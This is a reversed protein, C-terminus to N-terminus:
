KEPFLSRFLDALGLSDTPAVPAPVEPWTPEKIVPESVTEESIPGCVAYEARGGTTLGALIQNVNAVNVANIRETYKTMLDKGYAYRTVLMDMLTKPEKIKSGFSNSLQSKYIAFQAKTIGSKGLKAVDARIRALVAETDEVRYLFAPLGAQPAIGLTFYLNVRDEPYMMFEPTVSSYWGLPAASKAVADQLAFAAINVAMYSEATFNVPSTFGLYIAHNEPDKRSVSKRGSLMTDKIRARPASTRTDAKFGGLYQSLTKKLATEDMNGLIILISENVKAFQSVYFREAKRPFDDGLQHLTKGSKYPSGPHMLSDIVFRGTKKYDPKLPLCSKYYAFSAADPKRETSIARLAKLTLPLRSTPAAGSIRLDSATVDINMSIGNASLMNWFSIPTMGSINDLKLMDALYANEGENLSPVLSCGGKLLWTYRFTGKEGTQKYIVRIGNSFAWMQGGSLPETATAKIKQRAPSINLSTTDKHNITYSVDTTGAAQLEWSKIFQDKIGAMDAASSDARCVLTLNRSKDLLASVFNNFLRVGTEEDLVRGTFFDLKAQEAALSSGYLFASICRDLYVSNSIHEGIFDRRLDMVLENQADRYEGPISGHIDLDALVGALIGSAKPLLPTMSKVSIIYQEDSPTESSSVYRFDVLAPIHAARFKKALRKKILIGLEAAFKDSVMPQITKMRAAPTRATSYIASVTGTEGDHQHELRFIPEAKEKWAYKQAPTQSPLKNVLMSLLNMKNIIANADIDGSVIIAQNQPSYLKHMPGQDRGIIDFLMLLTSDVIEKSRPLILDNFRFITADSCVTVYGQQKPQIGNRNLYRFPSVSAFHPLECFAGMAQVSTEGATKQTENGSGVKQVLAIDVMGKDTNNTVLYYQVGNGLKGTKVQSAVPLSPLNDAPMIIPFCLLSVLFSFIYRSIKM